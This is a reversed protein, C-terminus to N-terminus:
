FEPLPCFCSPRAPGTAEWCPRLGTVDQDGMFVQGSTPAFTGTILNFATSKGAGNPGIIGLIQGESVDFSLAEVAVLGAFRKTLNKAELM